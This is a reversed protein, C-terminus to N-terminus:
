LLEKLKISPDAATVLAEGILVAHAGANRVRQIDKPTSIGSESVIIKGTPVLPALHETTELSVEFTKLNRNNIGIIEAGAETAISLEEENHVEVLCQMWTEQSLDLLESLNKPELMAVILLIADAGYARSEFVQYPDFIFDKRLIPIGLPSTIKRVSALDTIHGQFHKEETLVSIAAAGNNAYLAATSAPDLNERLIGNIPSQKKIEAIIRISDSMLSGSINLPPPQNKIRKEIKTLPSELKLKEVERKKSALIKKLIDPTSEM